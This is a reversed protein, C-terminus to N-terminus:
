AAFSVLVARGVDEIMRGRCFVVFGHFDSVDRYIYDFSLGGWYPHLILSGIESSGSSLAHESDLGVGPDFAVCENTIL